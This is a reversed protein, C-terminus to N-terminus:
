GRSEIIKKSYQLEWNEPYAYSPSLIRTPSKEKFCRNIMIEENVSENYKCSIKLLDFVASPRGGYFNSSYVPKRSTSGVKQVAILEGFVEEGVSAAFVMKPDIIFLYSYEEFTKKHGQLANFLKFPRGSGTLPLWEIDDGEMSPPADGIIYYRVDHHRCFHRRGSEILSQVSADAANIAPICLAVKQRENEKAVLPGALVLLLLIISKINMDLLRVGISQLLVISFHIRIDVCLRWSASFLGQKLDM